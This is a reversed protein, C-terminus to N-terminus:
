IFELNFLFPLLSVLQCGCFCLSVHSLSSSPLKQAALYKGISKIERLASLGGFDGLKRGVSPKLKLVM